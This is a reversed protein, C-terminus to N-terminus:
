MQDTTKGRSRAWWEGIVVRTPAEPPGGMIRRTLGFLWLKEVRRSELRDANWERAIWDLYHQPRLDVPRQPYHMKHMYYRNRHRDHVTQIARREDDSANTVALVLGDPLRLNRISPWDDDGRPGVLRVVTGDNLRALVEFNFDRDEPRPAYLNWRQVMGVANGAKGIISPMKFLGLFSLNAAVAYLLAIAVIAQAPGLMRTIEDSTRAKGRLSRDWFESPVFALSAAFNAWPFLNLEITTGLGIQFLAFLVVMVTRILPTSAPVFMVLPGLIEFWVVLPSLVRSFQPYRFLWDGLATNWYGQGIAHGIATGEAHWAAGNKAVGAVVYVMVFQLLLAMSAISLIARGPENSRRRQADLSWRAGCPLFMMWFLLLRLLMDGGDLVYYNRHQLSLLLVWSAVTAIRTAFGLLLMVAFLGALAFLGTAFGYSGNLQHLSLSPAPDLWHQLALARPVIGGDTYHAGILPVRQLLDVLVLAAVAMRLAALSRLDIAFLDRWTRAAM